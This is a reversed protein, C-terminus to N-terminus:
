LPQSGSDGEAQTTTEPASASLPVATPGSEKLSAGCSSCFSMRGDTAAGCNSCFRTGQSGGPPPPPTAGTSPPRYGTTPPRRRLLLILIIVLILLVAGGAIAVVGWWPFGGGETTAPPTITPSPPPLTPSPPPLTPSPLGTATPPPHPTGTPPPLATATPPPHPTATPPPSPLVTATPPTPPTTNQPTPSVTSSVAFSIGTLSANHFVVTYPDTIDGSGVTAVQGPLHVTVTELNSMDGLGILAFGNEVTWQGEPFAGLFDTWSIPIMYYGSGLDYPEDVTLAAEDRLGAVTDEITTTGYPDLYLSLYASGAGSEELWIELTDGTQALAGPTGAFLLTGALILALLSLWTRKM